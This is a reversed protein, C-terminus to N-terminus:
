GMKLGRASRKQGLSFFMSFCRLFRKARNRNNEKTVPKPCGVSGMSMVILSWTILIGKHFNDIRRHDAFAFEDGRNRHGILVLSAVALVPVHDAPPLPGFADGAPNMVGIRGDNHGEVPLCVLQHHDLLEADGHAAVLEAERGPQQVRAFVEGCTRAPFQALLGPQIQHANITLARGNKGGRANGVLGNGHDEGFDLAPRVGTVVLIRFVDFDEHQIPIRHPIRSWRLSMTKPARAQSTM